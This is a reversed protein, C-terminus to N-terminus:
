FFDELVGGLAEVLVQLDGTREYLHLSDIVQQNGRVVCHKLHALQHKDFFNIKTLKCITNFYNIRASRPSPQQYRPSLDSYNDIEIINTAPTTSLEGSSNDIINSHKISNSSTNELNQYKTEFSNNDRSLDSCTKEEAIRELQTNLHNILKKGLNKAEPAMTALFVNAKAPHMVEENTLEHSKASKLLARAKQTISAFLRMHVMNTKKYSVKSRMESIESTFNALAAHLSNIQEVITRYSSLIQKPLKLISRDIKGYQNQSSVIKKDVGATRCLIHSFTPTINYHRGSGTADEISTNYNSNSVPFLKILSNKM